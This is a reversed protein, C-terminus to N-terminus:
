KGGVIIGPFVEDSINRVGGSMIKYDKFVSAKIQLKWQLNEIYKHNKARSQGFIFNWM